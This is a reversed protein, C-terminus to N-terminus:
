DSFIHMANCIHTATMRCNITSTINFKRIFYFSSMKYLTPYCRVATFKVGNRQTATSVAASVASFVFAALTAFVVAILLSVSRMRPLMMLTLGGCSQWSCCSERCSRRCRVSSFSSTQGSAICIEFFARPLIVVPLLFYARRRM